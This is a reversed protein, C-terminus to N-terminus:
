LDSIPNLGQDNNDISSLIGSLTEIQLSSGFPEKIGDKISYV